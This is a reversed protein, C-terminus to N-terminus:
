TTCLRNKGQRRKLAGNVDIVERHAGPRQGSLGTLVKDTQQREIPQFGGILQDRKDRSRVDSSHFGGMIEGTSTTIRERYNESM